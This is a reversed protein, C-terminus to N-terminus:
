LDFCSALVTTSGAGRIKMIPQSLGEHNTSFLILRPIKMTFVERSHLIDYM